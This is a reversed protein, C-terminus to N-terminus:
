YNIDPKEISIDPLYLDFIWTPNAKFNAQNFAPYFTFSVKLENIVMKEHRILFGFGYAQYYKQALLQTKLSNLDAFAAYVFVAYNFGLIKFPSYAINTFQFTTKSINNFASSNVNLFGDDNDIIIQNFFGDTSVQRHRASIFIRNKFDTDFLIPSLYALKYTTTTRDLVENNSASVVFDVKGNIYGFKRKIAFGTNFGVYSVDDQNKYFSKGLLGNFYFGVPIDQSYLFRFIYNDVFYKRKVFGFNILATQGTENIRMLSTDTTSYNTIKEVANVFKANVVFNNSFEKKKFKNVNFSRGLWYEQYNLDSTFDAVITDRNYRFKKSHSNSITTGYGYKFFGTLYRRNLAIEKVYNTSSSSYKANLQIYTSFLNEDVLNYSSYRYKGNELAIDYYFKSGTGLFNQYKVSGIQLNDSQSFGGIIPYRDQILIEIIYHGKIKSRKTIVRADRIYISKRLLRESEELRLRPITDSEHFLLHQKIGKVRSPIVFFNGIKKIFGNDFKNTDSIDRGLPVYIKVIIEDIIFEKVGKEIEYDLASEVEFLLSDTTDYESEEIQAMSFGSYFILIIIFIKRMALLPM